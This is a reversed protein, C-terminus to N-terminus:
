PMATLVAILAWEGDGSRSTGVVVTEGVGMTLTTGLLHSEPAPAPTVVSLAANGEAPPSPPWIEPKGRLDIVFRRVSLEIGDLQQRALYSLSVRYLQGDSEGLTIEGDRSTRLWGVDVARFSDYPLFEEVDELAARSAAPLDDSYGSGARSAEVLVIQFTQSPRPDVDKEALLRTVQAHVADSAFVVLPETSRVRCLPTSETASGSRIGAREECLQWVWTEAVRPDLHTLRYVRDYVAEEAAAAGSPTALVANALLSFVVFTSFISRKM